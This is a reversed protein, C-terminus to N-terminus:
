QHVENINQYIAWEQFLVTWHKRNSNTRAHCSRCLAILNVPDSNKKDYDIHHVQLASNCEIQPVGCLQCKYGDRRRVEDKLEDDFTWAYPERSIGGRWSHSQSGCRAVKIRENPSSFRKITSQSIKARTKPSLPIGRRSSPMGKHAASIKARSEPTHLKGLMGKHSASIKKRTELSHKTGKRAKAIKARTEPSQKRKRLGASIKARVELSYKRKKGAASLKARHEPSFIKGKSASSIKARHELSLPIGKSWGKGLKTLGGALAM